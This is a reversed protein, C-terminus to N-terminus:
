RCQSLGAPLRGRELDITSLGGGGDAALPSMM